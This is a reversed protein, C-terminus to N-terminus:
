LLLPIVFNLFVIILVSNSVIHFLVVLPWLILENPVNESSRYWIVKGCLQFLSKGEEMCVSVPVCIGYSYLWIKLNSFGRFLHSSSFAHFKESMKGKEGHIIQIKICKLQM